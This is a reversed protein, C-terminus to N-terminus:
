WVMVSLTKPKPTYIVKVKVIYTKSADLREELAANDPGGADNSGALYTESKGSVEYLLLVADAEGFLRIHYRRTADPTITFAKQEGSAAAITASEFMALAPLSAAGLAPYTRKVWQVDLLSLGGAPLLPATQYKAPQLIMGANFQYEMVSNPDWKSGTVSRADLKNLINQEIQAQSWNNPPGAFYQRVKPENWVIGANPNQHEHSLGLAHGIEHLATDRGYPTNLPWAYNMTRETPAKHTLNDTGVYSWSGDAPAQVFGIRIEAKKPDTVELFDLGIGQNKWTRFANRVEALDTAKGRYPGTAFLYYHLKTGNAWTRGNVNIAELRPGSVAERFVQPTAPPQACFRLDSYDDAKSSAVKRTAARAM